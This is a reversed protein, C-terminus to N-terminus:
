TLCEFAGIVFVDYEDDDDDSGDNQQQQENTTADSQEVQIVRM